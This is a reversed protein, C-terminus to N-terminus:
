KATAYSLVFAASQVQYTLALAALPSCARAKASHVFLCNNKFFSDTGVFKRYNVFTIPSDSLISMPKSNTECDWFLPSMLPQINWHIILLDTEDFFQFNYRLLMNVTFVQTYCIRTCQRFFRSEYNSKSGTSIPVCICLYLWFYAHCKEPSFASHM